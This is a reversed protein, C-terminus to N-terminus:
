FAEEFVPVERARLRFGETRCYVSVTRVCCLPFTELRHCVCAHVRVCTRVCPSVSGGPPSLLTLAQTM